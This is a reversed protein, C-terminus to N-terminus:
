HEHGGGSSGDARGGLPVVIVRPSRMNAAGRAHPQRVPSFSVGNPEGGVAIRDAVTRTALDIVAVDGATVDTVYAHRGSPEVVVGHAGASTAITGTVEMSATDVFAVEDSPREPSGQCAALLTRGDPTPYLQIPGDCVAARGVVERTRLDIKAVADEGNVSVYAHRSDPSVAVQVPKEGVPVEAIARMTRADLIGVTGGELNAVVVLTGDPTARLGHPYDGGAIEETLTGDGTDVVAVGDKGAVTVYAHSGDPTVIVHAPSPGVDALQVIEQTDADLAVVLGEGTSTAWVIRGDPSAQVNHPAAIGRIVTVVEHTEADIATLSDAGENAVWITGEVAGAGGREELLAAAVVAPLAVAAVLAAAVLWVRGKTVAAPVPVPPPAPSGLTGAAPAEAVAPTLAVAVVVVLSGWVAGSGAVHLVRFADHWGSGHAALVIGIGFPVQLAALVAPAVGPLLPGRRRVALVFLAIALGLVVYGVTRHLAQLVGFRDDGVVGGSCGPWEEGCAHMADTAVVSAGLSVLLLGAAAAAVAVSRYASSITTDGRWAAAAPYACLALFVLGVMFHVGVVEGPLELWVVIAGLVAQVPVLALAAALVYSVDHRDRYRRLAWITSILLLVVVAAATLRHSFEIIPERQGEPVVRGDCLPWDPCGLGSKSVRVLGGVAVLAWAALATAAVLWRFGAGPRTV